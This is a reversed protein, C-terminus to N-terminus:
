IIGIASWRTIASHVSQPTVGFETGIQKLTKGKARMAAVERAKSMPLRAGGRRNTWSAAFAISIELPSPYRKSKRIHRMLSSATCVQIHGEYVCLDTDCTMVCRDCSRLPALRNATALVRRVPACRGDPTYVDPRGKRTSGAWVLCESEAVRYVNTRCIELLAPTITITPM